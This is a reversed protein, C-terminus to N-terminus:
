AAAERNRPRYDTTIADPPLGYAACLAALMQESPGRLGSEIASIAGRTVTLNPYEQRMREILQDITIGVAARLNALSVHPPTRRPRQRDYKTANRM